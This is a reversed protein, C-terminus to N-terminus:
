DRGAATPADLVIRLPRDPDGAESYVTITIRDQWAWRALLEMAREGGEYRRLGLETDLTFGVFEGYRNHVLGAIKGVHEVQARHGHHLNQDDVADDNDHEGSDGDDNQGDHGNGDHRHRHKWEGDPDAVVVDPDGGMEAVRRAIQELYRLFVPYWRSDTPIAQHIWRLVSLMREEGALLEGKTSVPITLHFVGLVRRWMLDHLWWQNTASGTTAVGTAAVLAHQLSPVDSEAAVAPKAKKRGKGNVTPENGGDGRHERDRFFERPADAIATTIQRITVHHTNGKKIGAPLDVTLLGAFNIDSGRPVPVYTVGGALVRITHDDEKQLRHTSYMQSALDLIEDASTGPLYVTAESGHPIDVWEFMLEDPPLEAPFAAPTPRVEFTQPVRRSDIMGPNPVNVFTLNRQALKDSTSPDAYGPIPVPDFQIEAILCQHASRVLQQIPLLPGASTFPGNFTAPTNPGVLRAPFLKDNPQNIDLWCGFYADVEGGLSDPQIARVNPADLQTAMSAVATNIRQTSFFPITMIEDGQVGLLPIHNSGNVGTRYLTNPNFTANTQQAPWMRFFLRVNNAAVTDRYRVRAVAFNYVPTGSGDTQAIALSAANEDMPLADFMSAASGPSGNLNTLVQQIFTTAVARAGGASGVHAAFKTQGQKVQFVKVDMSLFWPQGQATGGHLIYPNPNKILQIKAIGQVSTGAAAITAGLLVDRSTPPTPFGFMSTNQFVARYPFTFRQPHNGLTPDEPVVSGSFEFTMGSAVTSTVTPVNPPTSLNGSNLGLEGPTFGEVVVYLAPDITAPAGANNILATIEGEGFTSRDILFFCNQKAVHVQQATSGIGNAVVELNYNGPATSSPVQFLASHPTSGTAIGMTSFDFSRAYVVDGSSTNTLRVIPYNTSVGADDGYNCAQSLGNLQTGNVTYTHGAALGAPYTSTVTPRWAAQPTTLSSDPTLLELHNTSGDSFLVQGTPLVLLRVQYVFGTSSAPAPSLAALTNTAPDYVYMTAPRSWFTAGTKPPANPLRVTNGAVCVVRGGPLLAAPGDIVTQLNSNASNYTTSSTDTPFNPGATWTGPQTPNAPPTYLGTRGTGGVFFCRGDPLALAPGIESVGTTANNNLPDNISLLPLIGTTTGAAVWRDTAPIYKEAASSNDIRVALVTDDPLLAWTEENTNALKTQSSAGFALGSEIWLDLKPDWIATRPGGPSGLLVRGDALVCSVADSGIFSMSSPKNLASWTNNLPDFIEASTAADGTSCYEGGIVFVRGDQLVGSAFFQRRAAMRFPGSWSGSGYRGKADATLRYWADGSTYPANGLLTDKVLVSGDTLLVMTDPALGSPINRVAAWSNAVITVEENVSLTRGVALSVRLGTEVLASNKSTHAERNKLPLRVRATTARPKPSREAM